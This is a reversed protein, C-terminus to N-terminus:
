EFVTGVKSKLAFDQTLLGYLAIDERQGKIKLAARQTGEHVFGLRSLLKISAFNSPMCRAELRALRQEEFSFALLAELAEQMLGTGWYAPSLAYGIEAKDHETDYTVYGCTGIMRGSTRDEIAWEVVEGQDSRRIMAKIYAVSDLISRHQEWMVYRSVRPMHAYAFLDEADNLRVKRLLLRETELRPM